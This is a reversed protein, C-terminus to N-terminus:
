DLMVLTRTMPRQAVWDRWQHMPESPPVLGLSAGLTTNGVITAASYDAHAEADSMLYRRYNDNESAFSIDIGPYHLKFDPDDHATHALEHAFAISTVIGPTLQGETLGFRDMIRARIRPTVAEPSTPISVLGAGGNFGKSDDIWVEASRPYKLRPFLEAAMTLVEGCPPGLVEDVVSAATVRCEGPAVIRQGSMWLIIGSLRSNALLTIPM